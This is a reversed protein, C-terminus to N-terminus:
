RKMLERLKHELKLHHELGMQVESLMQISVGLMVLAVEYDHNDLKELTQQLISVSQQIAAAKHANCNGTNFEQNSM